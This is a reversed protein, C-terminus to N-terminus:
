EPIGFIIVYLGGAVLVAALAVMFIYSGRSTGSPPTQMGKISPVILYAGAGILMLGMFTDRKFGTAAMTVGIVVVAGIALLMHLPNVKQM